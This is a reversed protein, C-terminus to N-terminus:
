PLNTGRVASAHSFIIQAIVKDLVDSLKLTYETLQIVLRREKDETTGDTTDYAVLMQEVVADSLTYAWDVIRESSGQAFVPPYGKVARNLVDDGIQMGFHFVIQDRIKKLTTNFLSNPQKHENIVWAIDNRLNPLSAALQNLVGAAREMGEYVFSVTSLLGFINDRAKVPGDPLADTSLVFRQSSRLTNMIHSLVLSERLLPISLLELFNEAELVVKHPDPDM